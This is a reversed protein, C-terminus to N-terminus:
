WMLKLFFYLNDELLEDIHYYDTYKNNNNNNNNNIVHFCFNRVEPLVTLVFTNRFHILAIISCPSDVERRYLLSLNHYLQLLCLYCMLYIPVTGASRPSKPSLGPINPVSVLSQLEAGGDIRIWRCIKKNFIRVSGSISGSVVAHLATARGNRWLPPSNALFYIRGFKM